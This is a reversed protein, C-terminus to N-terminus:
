HAARWENLQDMLDGYISAYSTVVSETAEMFPELEPENIKMNNKKLEDILSETQARNSKRDADASNQAAQRVIDQWRLM